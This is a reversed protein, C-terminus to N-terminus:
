WRSSVGVEVGFMEEDRRIGAERGRCLGGRKERADVGAWCCPRIEDGGMGGGERRRGAGGEGGM